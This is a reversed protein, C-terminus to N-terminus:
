VLPGDSSSIVRSRGTGHPLFRSEDGNLLEARPTPSIKVVKLLAIVAATLDSAAADVLLFPALGDSAAFVKSTTILNNTAKSLQKKLRVIQKATDEAPSAPSTEVDKVVASVSSVVSRMHNFAAAHDESRALHLLEGIATQFNTVHIDQVLGDPSNFSSDQMAQATDPRDADLNMSTAKLSGQATKTRAYRHKWEELENQLQTIREQLTEKENEAHDHQESLMTLEQLMQASEQRTEQVAQERDNFRKELEDHKTQWINSADNDNNQQQQKLTTHETLMRDFNGGLDTHDRQLNDHEEQLGQHNSQLIEHDDQFARYNSQLTSHEEQLTQHSDQLADHEEQIGRQNEQLASYEEQLAQHTDLLAGHEEQIGRHSEQLAEYQQRVGQHESQLVEHRRRFSEYEARLNEHDASATELDINRTRLDEFDGNAKAHDQM